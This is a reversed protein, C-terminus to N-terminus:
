PTSDIVKTYMEPNMGPESPGLGLGIAATPARLWSYSNVEPLVPLLPYSSPSLTVHGEGKLNTGYVLTELVKMARLHFALM